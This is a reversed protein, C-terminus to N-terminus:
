WADGVGSGAPLLRPAAADGSLNWIRWGVIPEDSREVLIRETAM